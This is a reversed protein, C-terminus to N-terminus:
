EEFPPPPPPSPAPPPPAPDVQAPATVEAPAASASASVASKQEAASASTESAGARRGKRSASSAKAEDEKGQEKAHEKAQEKPRGKAEDRLKRRNATASESPQRKKEAARPASPLSALYRAMAAAEAPGTTYHTRLFRASARSVEQPRHHCTACTAAFIQAPSKGADLNDQAIAAGDFLALGSLSMVITM